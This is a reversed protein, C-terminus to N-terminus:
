RVKRRLSLYFTVGAIAALAFVVLPVTSGTGTTPATDTQPLEDTATPTPAHTPLVSPEPTPTPAVTATPEPTGTPEPTATPEPTPTPEVTPTPTPEVPTATPTPTPQEEAPCFIIHSITKDGEDYAGSGNSDAWVTEGASANAFLTNTHEDTSQDSGAKVIVLSYDATLLYTSGGPEGDKTCDKGWTAPNNNEATGAAYGTVTAYVTSALAPLALLGVLVVAAGAARLARM